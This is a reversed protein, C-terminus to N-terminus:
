KYRPCIAIDSGFPLTCTLLSYLIIGASWIDVMRGDYGLINSTAIEPAIYHPSGVVSRLRRLPVAPSPQSMAISEPTLPPGVPSRLQNLHGLSYLSSPATPSTPLSATNITLGVGGEGGGGVHGRGYTVPYDDAAGEDASSSSNGTSSSSSSSSSSTSSSPAERSVDDNLEINSSSSSSSGSSVTLMDISGSRGRGFKEDVIESAFVVASLGFDGIKLLASESTDSLLLNEPKLDRHVVGKKHCYDIGSLLQTFYRRAFEDPTGLGSMKMREFLEGGSVLELVLFLTAKSDQVLELVELLDIINPHEGIHIMNSMERCVTQRMRLWKLYKPAVLPLQMSTGSVNVIPGSINAKDQEAEGVIDGFPTWGWVEICKPLTLERLQGRHADEYAAYVQRTQPHVLWWVRDLTMPAKGSMQDHTLPLGKTATVCSSIQGYPLSKFGVPNLIKIAVSKEQESSMDIAQYVSGSAGGGLYNGLEYAVEGNVFITQGDYKDIQRSIPTSAM